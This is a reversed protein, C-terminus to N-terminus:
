NSNKLIQLFKISNKSYPEQIPKSSHIKSHNIEKKKRQDPEVEIKEMVGVPLIKMAYKVSAISGVIDNLIKLGLLLVLITLVGTTIYAYSAFALYSIAALIM